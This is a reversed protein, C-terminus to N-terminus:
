QLWEGRKGSTKARLNLIDDDGTGAVIQFEGKEGLTVKPIFHGGM